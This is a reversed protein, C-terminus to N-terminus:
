LTPKRKEKRCSISLYDRGSLSILLRLQATLSKNGDGDDNPQHISPTTSPHISRRSSPFQTWHLSVSLMISPLCSQLTNQKKRSELPLPLLPPPNIVIQFCSFLNWVSLCANEWVCVCFYCTENGYRQSFIVCRIPKLFFPFLLSPLISFMFCGWTILQGSCNGWTHNEVLWVNTTLRVFFKFLHSTWITLFALLQIHSQHLPSHHFLLSVTVCCSSYLFRIMSRRSCFVSLLWDSPTFPSSPRM